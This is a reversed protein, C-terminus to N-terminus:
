LKCSGGCRGKEVLAIHNAIYNRFYGDYEEGDKTKGAEYVVEATYGVSLEMTNSSSQLSVITDSDTIIISSSVIHNDKFKASTSLGVAYDRYNKTTIDEDPHEDTVTLYSFTDVAKKVEKKPRYIKIVEKNILEEPLNPLEWYMYEQINGSNAIPVDEFVAFGNHNIASDNLKISSKDHILM